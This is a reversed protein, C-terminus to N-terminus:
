AQEDAAKQHKAQQERWLEADPRRLYVPEVSIGGTVENPALACIRSASVRHVPDSDPPVLAGAAELIARFRVSGDGAALPAGSLGALRTALDEPTGVFPPWVEGGGSDHLAAFLEGRRADLVALRPRASDGNAGNMGAALAALTGVGVPTVGLAQALGRATAIGVRLGTFSGPGVGVAIRDVSGWGGLAEAAAEIDALLATVHVPRGGPTAPERRAEFATEGDRTAAVVTDATATDFGVVASM